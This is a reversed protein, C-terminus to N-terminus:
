HFIPTGPTTNESPLPDGREGWQRNCLNKAASSPEEPLHWRQPIMIWPSCVWSRGLWPPLALHVANPQLGTHVPKFGTNLPQPVDNPLRTQAAQEALWESM